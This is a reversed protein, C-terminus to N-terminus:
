DVSRSSLNARIRHLQRLLCFQLNECGSPRGIEVINAAEPGFDDHVVLSCLEFIDHGGDIRHKVRDFPVRLM